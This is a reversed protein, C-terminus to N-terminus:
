IDVPFALAADESISESPLFIGGKDGARRRQSGSQNGDTAPSDAQSETQGATPNDVQPETPEAPADAGYTAACCVTVSVALLLPRLKSLTMAHAQLPNQLTAQPSNPMALLVFALIMAAM